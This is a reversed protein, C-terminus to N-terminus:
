FDKEEDYGIVYTKISVGDIDEVKEQVKPHMKKSSFFVLYIGQKIGVSRCYFALQKKGRDFRIEDRFIKAEIVYERNNINIIVDSRGLSTHAELYSKGELSQIFSQIYTEFAYVLAAEKIQKYEGTKQDKERFYRFGRRKVYDKFNGILTDFNISKDEKLYILLGKNFFEDRETEGNVFPYFADYLIKKYLPVWFQVNGKEDERIVGNVHLFKMREDNIRYRVPEEKFLLREVFERHKKAKNIINSVNKDIVKTVYWDEVKLYDKYTIVDRDKCRNVLQYAFGNVLGPQGATIQFIKDKVKEHFLQGTETEHQALLEVVEDHTFYPVDLNDAINFPSASNEIISTINSVGVLIVSKLCHEDRFHYLNRITHLFQNFIEKNLGEIEDIILVCQGTIRKIEDFVGTFTVSQVTIECGKKLEYTLHKLFSEKAADQFNEVNIHTVKHGQCILKKSVLRFYTSKGSQRPAWLTFYRKERVMDLGKEVLQERMLTYHEEPNNPGSTNFYRKKLTPEKSNYSPCLIYKRDL